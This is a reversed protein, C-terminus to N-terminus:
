LESPLSCEPAKSASPSFGGAIYLAYHYLAKLGNLNVGSFQGGMTYCLHVVCFLSAPSLFLLSGPATGFSGHSIHPGEPVAATRKKSIGAHIHRGVLPACHVHEIARSKTELQQDQLTSGVYPSCAANPTFPVIVWVAAERLTAISCQPQAKSAYRICIDMIRLTSTSVITLRYTRSYKEKRVGTALPRPSPNLAQSM